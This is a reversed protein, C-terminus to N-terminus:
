ENSVRTLSFSVKHGREKSEQWVLRRSADFWLVVDVDGTIRYETCNRQRGALDFTKEGIRQLKGKLLKGKDSDLITVPRVPSSDWHTLAAQVIGKGEAVEEAILRQPMHWYSTVWVDRDMESESGDVTVQLGSSGSSAKVAHQEGDYDASNELRILHGNKWVETGSSTYSYKYVFLNIKLEQESSMLVSGDKRRRIHMTCTGRKTGDVAISFERTESRSNHPEDSGLSPREACFIGVSLITSFVIAKLVESKVLHTM